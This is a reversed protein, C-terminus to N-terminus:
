SVKVIEVRGFGLRRTDTDLFGKSHERMEELRSSSYIRNMGEPDDVYSQFVFDFSGNDFHEAGKTTNFHVTTYDREGREMDFHIRMQKEREEPSNERSWSYLSTILSAGDHEEGFGTQTLWLFKLDDHKLWDCEAILRSRLEGARRTKEKEDSEGPIRFELLLPWIFSETQFEDVHLLHLERCGVSEMAGTLGDMVATEAPLAHGSLVLLVDHSRTDTM